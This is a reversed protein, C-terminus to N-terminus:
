FALMLLINKFITGHHFRFIYRINLYFIMFNYNYEEIQINQSPLFNNM